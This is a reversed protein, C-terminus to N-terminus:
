FNGAATTLAGGAPVAPQEHIPVESAIGSWHKVCRPHHSIKVLGKALESDDLIPTDRFVIGDALTYPWIRDFSRKRIEQTPSYPPQASTEGCFALTTFLM